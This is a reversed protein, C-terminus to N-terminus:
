AAQTSPNDQLLRKLRGELYARVKHPDDAPFMGPPTLSLSLTASHPSQRTVGASSLAQRLAPTQQDKALGVNRVAVVAGQHQTSSTPSTAHYHARQGDAPSVSGEVADTVPVVVNKRIGLRSQKQRTNDHQSPVKNNIKATLASYRIESQQTATTNPTINSATQVVATEALNKRIGSPKAQHLRLSSKKHIPSKTALSASSNLKVNDIQRDVTPLTISAKTNLAANSTAVTSEASDHKADSDYRQNVNAFAQAIDFPMRREPMQMMHIGSKNTASGQMNWGPSQFPGSPRSFRNSSPGQAPRSALSRLNAGLTIHRSPALVPMVVDERGSRSNKYYKIKGRPLGLEVDAPRFAVNDDGRVGLSGSSVRAAPNNLNDVSRLRPLQKPSHFRLDLATLSTLPALHQEDALTPAKAALLSNPGATYANRTINRSTTHSTLYTPPPMDTPPRLSTFSPETVEPDTLYQAQAQLVFREVVALQRRLLDDIPLGEIDRHQRDSTAQMSEFTPEVFNHQELFSDAMEVCPPCDVQDARLLWEGTIPDQVAAVEAVAGHQVPQLGVSRQTEHISRPAAIGELVIASTASAVTEMMRDVDQRRQAENQERLQAHLKSPENGGNLESRWNSLCIGTRKLTAALANLRQDHLDLPGEPHVAQIFTAEALVRLADQYGITALLNGHGSFVVYPDDSSSGLGGVLAEKLDQPSTEALVMEIFSGQKDYEAQTQFIERLGLLTRVNKSRDISGQAAKEAISLLLMFDYKQNILVEAPSIRDDPPEPKNGLTRIADMALRFTRRDSDKSFGTKKRVALDGDLVSEGSQPLSGHRDIHTIILSAAGRASGQRESRTKTGHERTRLRLKDLSFIPRLRCVDGKEHAWTPKQEVVMAVRLESVVDPIASDHGSETGLNSRNNRGSKRWAAFKDKISEPRELSISVGLPEGAQHAENPRIAPTVEDMGLVAAQGAMQFLESNGPVEHHAQLGFEGDSQDGAGIVLHERGAQYSKVEM